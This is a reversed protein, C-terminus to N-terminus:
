GIRIDTGVALGIEVRCRLKAEIRTQIKESPGRELKVGPTQLKIVAILSQASLRGLRARGTEVVHRVQRDKDVTKRKPYPTPKEVSWFTCGPLGRVAV